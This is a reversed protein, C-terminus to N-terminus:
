EEENEFRSARDEVTDGYGDPLGLELQGDDSLKFDFEIPERPTRVRCALKGLLRDRKGGKISLTTSFSGSRGSTQVGAALEPLSAILERENAEMLQRVMSQQGRSLTKRLAQISDPKPLATVSTM